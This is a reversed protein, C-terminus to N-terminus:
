YVKYRRKVNKLSNMYQEPLYFGFAKCESDTISMTHDWNVGLVVTEDDIDAEWCPVKQKLHNLSQNNKYGDIFAWIGKQMLYLNEKYFPILKNHRDLCVQRLHLLVEFINFEHMDYYVQALHYKQYQPKFGNISYRIIHM